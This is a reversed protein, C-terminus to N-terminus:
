NGFEAETECKIESEFESHAGLPRGIVLLLEKFGEEGEGIGWVSTGEWTVESFAGGGRAM